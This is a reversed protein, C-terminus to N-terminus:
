VTGRLRRLPRTRLLHEDLNDAICPYDPEGGAGARRIRRHEALRGQQQSRQLFQAGYVAGTLPHGIRTGLDLLANSDAEAETTRGALLHRWSRLMLVQWWHFPLGTREAITELETLCADFEGLDGTEIVAWARHYLATSDARYTVAASPSPWRSM